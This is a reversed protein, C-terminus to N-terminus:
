SGRGKGGLFSRILSFTKQFNITRWHALVYRARAHFVRYATRLMRERQEVTACDSRYVAHISDFKSWDDTVLRDKLEEYIQSGPFPTLLSFQGIKPNLRCAYEITSKMDRVTEIPGGLIFSGQVRIGSGALIRCAKASTDVTSKKEYQALVRDSASEIGLFITSCGSEAMRKVMRRNRVITDARAMGWWRIDLKREIILDCMALVREVDVAINDDVFFIGRFGLTRISEVENVVRQVSRWRWRRGTMQTSVCFSCNYPCGRSTVLTTAPNIRELKTERYADITLLSRDPDPLEDLDEIFPRAANDIVEGTREDLWSIGAVRSPDCTEGERALAGVLERMTYEGEGRVIYDVAGGRLLEEQIFTPHPGGFVVTKGMSKARRAVELAWFHQSSLCGVGLVDCAGVDADTPDGDVAVDILKVEHGAEKLVTGVYLLGLPPMLIGGAKYPGGLDPNVLLVRVGNGKSSGQSFLLTYTQTATM